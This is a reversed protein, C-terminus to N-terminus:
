NGKVAVKWAKVGKKWLKLAVLDALPERMSNKRMNGATYETMLWYFPRSISYGRSELESILTEDSMQYVDTM